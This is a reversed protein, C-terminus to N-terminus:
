RTQILQNENIQSQSRSISVAAVSPLSKQWILSGSHPAQPTFGERENYNSLLNNHNYERISPLTNILPYLITCTM